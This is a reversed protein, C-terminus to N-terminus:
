VCILVGAWLYVWISVCVCRGVYGSGGWCIKWGCGCLRARACVCVFLRLCAALRILAMRRFDELHDFFYFYDNLNAVNAELMYNTIEISAPGTYFIIFKNM